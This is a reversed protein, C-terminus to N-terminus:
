QSVKIMIKKAMGHGVAVKMGNVEVTQPGRWFQANIKRVTKGARIGINQIRRNFEEGGALEVIVGKQNAKLQTLDIIM